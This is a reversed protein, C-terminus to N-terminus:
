TPSGSPTPLNSADIEPAVVAIFLSGRDCVAQAKFYTRHEGNSVLVETEVGEDEILLLILDTRQEYTIRAQIPTMEIYGRVTVIPDDPEVVVIIAGPPLELGDVETDPGPSPPPECPPYGGLPATAQPPLTPTPSAGTGTGSCSGLALAVALAGARAVRTSAFVSRGIGRV